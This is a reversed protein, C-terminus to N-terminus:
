LTHVSYLSKMFPQTTPLSPKQSITTGTRNAAKFRKSLIAELTRNFREVQANGQPHYANTRTKDIGLIHCLSSVTQSCLNPAQDSHLTAPVGNHCVAENVLIEAITESDTTALPFAEIWKSFLDTVVLIYKHGQSTKPLPVMIDISLKQFPYAAEITHLPTQPTPNPPNRQQCEKCERVCKETDGEYGPWYYIEKVRELTKKIGLHGACNHLQQLVTPRLDTPVLTQTIAPTGSSEQIVDCVM